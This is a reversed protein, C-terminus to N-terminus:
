QVFGVYKIIFDSLLMDLVEIGLSKYISNISNILNSPQNRLIM